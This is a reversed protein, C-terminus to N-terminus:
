WLRAGSPTHPRDPAPSVEARGGNDEIRNLGGRSSSLASGAPTRATVATM